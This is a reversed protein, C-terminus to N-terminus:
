CFPNTLDSAVDYSLYGDTRPDDSEARLAAAALNAEIDEPAPSLPDQAMGTQFDELGAEAESTTMALATTTTPPPPPPPPPPVASPTYPTFHFVSDDPGLCQGPDLGEPLENIGVTLPRFEDSQDPLMTYGDPATGSINVVKMDDYCFPVSCVQGDPGVIGFCKEDFVGSQMCVQPAEAVVDESVTFATGNYIFDSSVTPDSKYPFELLQPELMFSDRTTNACAQDPETYLYDCSAHEVPVVPLQQSPRVMPVLPHVTPEGLNGCEAASKQLNRLSELIHDLCRAFEALVAHEKAVSSENKEEAEYLQALM